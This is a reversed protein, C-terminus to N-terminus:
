QVSYQTNKELKGPGNRDGRGWLRQGLKSQFIMEKVPVGFSQETFGWCVTVNSDHNGHWRFGRCLVFQNAVKEGLAHVADPDVAGM